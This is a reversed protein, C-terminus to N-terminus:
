VNKMLFCTRQQLLRFLIMETTQHMKDKVGSLRGSAIGRHLLKQLHGRKMGGAAEGARTQTVAASESVTKLVEAKSKDEGNKM